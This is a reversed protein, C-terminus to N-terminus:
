SQVVVVKKSALRSLNEAYSLIEEKKPNRDFYFKGLDKGKLSMLWYGARVKKGTEEARAMAVTKSKCVNEILIEEIRAFPIRIRWIPIYLFSFRIYIEERKKDVLINKDYFLLLLGLLPFGLFSCILAFFLIKDFIAPSNYLILLYVNAAKYMIFFVISLGLLMCGMAKPFRSRKLYMRNDDLEAIRLTVALGM